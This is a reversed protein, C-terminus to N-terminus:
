DLLALNRIWNNHSDVGYRIKLYIRVITIPDSFLSWKM